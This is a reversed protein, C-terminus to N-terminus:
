AHPRWTVQRIGLRFKINLVREFEADLLSHEDILARYTKLRVDTAKPPYFMDRFVLCLAAIDSDSLGSEAQLQRWHDFIRRQAEDIETEPALSLEIFLEHMRPKFPELDTCRRATRLNRKYDLIRRIVAFRKQIWDIAFQHDDLARRTEPRQGEAIVAAIAAREKARAEEVIKDMIAMQRAKVSDAMEDIIAQFARETSEQSCSASVRDAVAEFDGSELFETVQSAVDCKASNADLKTVAEIREYLSVVRRMDAGMKLVGPCEVHSVTECAELNLAPVTISRVPGALSVFSLFTYFRM